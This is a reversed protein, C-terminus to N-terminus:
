DRLGTPFNGSTSRNRIRSWGRSKRSWCSGCHSRRRISGTSPTSLSSQQQFGAIASSVTEVKVTSCEVNTEFELHAATQPSLRVAGDTNSFDFIKPQSDRPGKATLTTKVIRPRDVPEIRFPTARGDGGWIEAQSSQQQPAMELRFDGVTFKELTLTQTKGEAPRLRLHVTQTPQKQDTVKVQLSFVEGRPVQLVNNRVGVVEIVTSRPWPRDSGAFWREAWLKATSPFALAIGAPVLLAAIAVALSIWLHRSNLASGFNIGALTAHSARVAVERMESSEGVQDPNGETLQLVSAVQSALPVGSRKQDLAAAIDIPGLPLKWPRVVFWYLVAAASTLVVGWYALRATLSLDLWWDLGLSLLLLGVAVVLTRAVGEALFHGLLARRVVNLRAAVHERLSALTETSTRDNAM